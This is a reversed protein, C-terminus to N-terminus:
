MQCYPHFVLIVEGYAGLMAPLADWWQKSMFLGALLYHEADKKYFLSLADVLLEIYKNKM